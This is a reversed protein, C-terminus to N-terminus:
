KLKLKPRTTRNFCCVGCIAMFVVCSINIIFCVLLVPTDLAQNSLIDEGTLDVCQPGNPTQAKSVCNYVQGKFENQSMIKVTNSIPSLYQLWSIAPSLSKLNVVLGGFIIM